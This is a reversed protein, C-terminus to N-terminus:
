NTIGNAGQGGSGTFLIRKGAKISTQVKLGAARGASVPPNKVGGAKISTKIKM